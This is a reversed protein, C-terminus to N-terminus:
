FVVSPCHLWEASFIMPPQKEKCNIMEATSVATKSIQFLSRSKSNPALSFVM